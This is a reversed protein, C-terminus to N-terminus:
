KLLANELNNPSSFSSPYYLIENPSIPFQIPIQIPKNRSPNNYPSIPFQIPIQIPKNRSPNNYPSIPFQIPIQIPKNTSPNILKLANTINKNPVEVQFDNNEALKSILNVGFEEHFSNKKKKASPTTWGLVKTLDRNLAGKFNKSNLIETGYDLLKCGTGEHIDVKDISKQHEMKKYNKESFVFWDLHNGKFSWGTDDVVLCGNHRRGNPTQLGKLQPVYVKTGPKLDNVAASQFPVLPRTMSSQGFPFKRHDLEEFCAFGKKCDCDGLNILKGSLTYGSGEMRISVAFTSSVRTIPKNQCTRLITQKSSKFQPDSEMPVWYYTFKANRKLINSHDLKLSSSDLQTVNPSNSKNRHTPLNLATLPQIGGLLLLSFLCSVLGLNFKKIKQM